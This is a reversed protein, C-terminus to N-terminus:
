VEQTQLKTQQIDQIKSNINKMLTSFNPGNNGLSEEGWGKEGKSDGIVHIHLWKFINWLESICM